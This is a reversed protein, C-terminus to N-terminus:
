SKKKLILTNEYSNIYKQQYKETKKKKKEAQHYPNDHSPCIPSHTYTVIMMAPIFGAKSLHM